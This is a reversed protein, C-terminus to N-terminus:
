FSSTRLHDALEARSAIGLKAYIRQLHNDVTRTSLYLADAIEKSSQGAAALLAVQRERASLPSRNELLVLGPTSAGDLKDILTQARVSAATAERRRDGELLLNAVLAASEAAFLYAGCALFGDTASVALAPDRALLAEAHEVRARMLEGSVFPALYRLGTAAEEIGFGIRALDYLAAAASALQGWERGLQAAARLVGAAEARDGNALAAWARGREIHVDMQRVVTSGVSDLDRIASAATVGDGAQGTALAIGGLGWRRGPHGFEAFLTTAERYYNEAERMRGQDVVILGLVCALWAQAGRNGHEIAGAYVAEAISRAEDIRGAERLALVQAARFATERSLEEISPSAPRASIAEEVHRIAEDSRGALALAVGLDRAAQAFAVDRRDEVLPRCVEIARVVDGELLVLDALQGELVRRSTADSLAVATDLLLQKAAQAQGAFVFMASALRAGLSAREQDTRALDFAERLIAEAETTQGLDLLSDVLLTAAQLDKGVEWAHRALRAALLFDASVFAKRAAALSLEPRADGGDLRWIADQLLEQSTLARVAGIQEIAAALSRCLRGRRAPSLRARVVEGYLPQALRVEIGYLGSCAELIRRRELDEAVTLSVLGTLLALEIPESLAVLEVAEREVASLGRIRNGILDRLRASDSLRGNMSWLGDRLALVGSELVGTLLERLLLGNGASATVLESVAAGDIPGPLAARLVKRVDEDPLADVQVRLSREHHWIEVLRGLPRDGIRVTLVVLARSEEVVNRILATSLEDLEQADDVVIVLRDDPDRSALARSIAIAPAVAGDEEIALEAFLPGLAARPIGAASPSARIPVSTLGRAAAMKHVENALRTKGVGAAGVLAVSDCEPNDLADSLLRLEHERGILPWDVM